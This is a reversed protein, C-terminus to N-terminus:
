LQWTQRSEARFIDNQHYKLVNFAVKNQLSFITKKIGVDADETLRDCAWKAFRFRMPHDFPKLEQQLIEWRKEITYVVM